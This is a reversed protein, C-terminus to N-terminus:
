SYLWYLTGALSGVLALLLTVRWFKRWVDRRRESAAWLRTDRDSADEYSQYFCHLCKFGDWAYKFGCGPCQPEM